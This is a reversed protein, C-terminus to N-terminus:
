EHHGEERQEFYFVVPHPNPAVLGFRVANKYTVSDRMLTAPMREVMQRFQQVTLTSKYHNCSRCAPLMNAVTDAGGKRLPTIHDAQMERLNIECGCYACRGGMKDYVTQRETKTLKKRRDM